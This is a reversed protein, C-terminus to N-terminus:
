PMKQPPTGSDAAEARYPPLSALAKRYDIVLEELQDPALWNGKSSRQDLFEEPEFTVTFATPAEPVDPLERIYKSIDPGPSHIDHVESLQLYLYPERVFMWGRTSEEGGRSSAQSVRFYVREQANVKDLATSLPASLMSIEDDRFARSKAAEGMVLRHVVNRRESSLVHHLLTGIESPSLQVPHTNPVSGPDPELRVENFGQAFITRGDSPTTSVCGALVICFAVGALLLPRLGLKKLEFTQAM